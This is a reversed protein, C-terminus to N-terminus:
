KALEKDIEKQIERVAKEKTIEVVRKTQPWGRRKHFRAQRDGVVFPAYSASNTIEGIVRGRMPKVEWKWRNSMKESNNLNRKGTFTGRGRVYYPPPAMNASSPPPYTEVTRQIDKFYNDMGKAITREPRELKKLKDELAKLGIVVEAM